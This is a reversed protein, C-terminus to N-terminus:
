NSAARTAALGSGVLVNHVRNFAPHDAGPSEEVEGRTGAQLLELAASPIHDDETTHRDLIALADEFTTSDPVTLGSAITDLRDGVVDSLILNLSTAPAIALALRGGKIASLHKRVCNLEHITAGSALLASTVARQDELNIRWETAHLPAVLLASGGGSIVSVVLTREDAAGCEALLREAAIVCTEDPVPHSAELLEVRDLPAAHGHKTVVVGGELRDGLVQEVGRAMSAAAKGVGLVRVRNYGDLPIRTELGAADTAVLANQELRLQDHLILEPDVRRIAAQYAHELLARGM